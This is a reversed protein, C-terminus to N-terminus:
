SPRFVSIRLSKHIRCGYDDAGAGAAPTLADSGIRSAPERSDARRLSVQPENEGTVTDTGIAGIVLLLPSKEIATRPPAVVAEVAAM